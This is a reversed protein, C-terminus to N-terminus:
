IVVWANVRKTSRRHLGLCRDAISVWVDIKLEDFLRLVEDIKCLNWVLCREENYLKHEKLSIRYCGKRPLSDSPPLSNSCLPYGYLNVISRVTVIDEYDSRSM